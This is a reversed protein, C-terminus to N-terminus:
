QYIDQLAKKLEPYKFIFGAKQIKESSVKASDLLLHSKEGLVGKLVFSPVNPLWTKRKLERALTQTFIENNILEPAVMNYVGKIKENELAFIFLSIVDELHIWSMWQKGSGLPSGLGLSILRAMQPLAGQSKNIVLGTRLIVVRIDSLPVDLVSSEWHLCTESLFGTGIESQETLLTDGRDGYFGVASSSIVTKVQHTSNTQLKKYILKISETRSAIIKEKQKKTWRSGGINEGALHIITSVGNFAAEDIENNDLDWKYYQISSLPSSINNRSLVHITYGRKLLESSLQQGIMGTAGTILIKNM